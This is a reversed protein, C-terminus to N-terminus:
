IIYIITNHLEFFSIHCSSKLKSLRLDLFTIQSFDCHILFTFNDNKVNISATSM